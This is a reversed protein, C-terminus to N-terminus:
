RKNAQQAKPFFRRTKAPDSLLKHALLAILVVVLPIQGVAWVMAATRHQDALLDPGFPLALSRYFNGGIVTTSNALFVGGLAQFPLAACLLGLKGATTLRHPSPDTGLIIWYYPYGMLLADLNMVLHAAHSAALAGFLGTPYMVWFSALYMSLAMAPHTSMRVLWSQTFTVLWERAAPPDGAAVPTMAHLALTLPSGLALLIPALASLLVYAGLHVSFLAMSYRGIGSSTAILIVACGGLWATTRRPPWTQGRQALRHAGTLYAGALVLAALGVVLDPRWDTIL